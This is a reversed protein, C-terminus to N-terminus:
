AGRRRRRLGGVRRRIAREAGMGVRAPRPREAGGAGGCGNRFSPVQPLTNPQGALVCLKAPLAAPPMSLKKAFAQALAATRIYANGPIDARTDSVAAFSGAIGANINEYAVDAFNARIDTMGTISHRPRRGGPPRPCPFATSPSHRRPGSIGVLSAGTVRWARATGEVRLVAGPVSLRERKAPVGCAAGPMETFRTLTWASCKFSHQSNHKGSRGGDPFSLPEPCRWAYRKWREAM